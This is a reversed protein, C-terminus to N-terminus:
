IIEDYLVFNFRPNLSLSLSLFPTISIFETEMKIKVDNPKEVRHLNSQSQYNTTSRFIEEGHDIEYYIRNIYDNTKSNTVRPRANLWGRERNVTGEGYNTGVTSIIVM